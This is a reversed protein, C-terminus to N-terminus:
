KLTKFIQPVRCQDVAKLFDFYWAECDGEKHKALRVKCAEYAAWPATAKAKCEETIRPMQCEPEDGDGAQTTPATFLPSIFLPSNPPTASFGYIDHQSRKDKLRLWRRYGVGKLVSPTSSTGNSCKLLRSFSTLPLRGPIEKTIDRSSATPLVTPIQPYIHSGNMRKRADKVLTKKVIVGDPQLGL